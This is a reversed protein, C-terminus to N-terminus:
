RKRRGRSTHSRIESGGLGRRLGPDVREILSTPLRLERRLRAEQRAMRGADAEHDYGALHLVGHLVLIKVEDAAAHGLRRANQRAMEASIIIDGAFRGALDSVPPFSLVDTPTDKGRFCRNLGRIEHSSSVVVNVRGHLGSARCARLTFRALSRESLGAIPKRIIIVLCVPPCRRGERM